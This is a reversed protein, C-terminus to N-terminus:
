PIPEPISSGDPGGARSLQRLQGGMRPGDIQGGRRRPRQVQDRHGGGGRLVKNPWGALVGEPRGTRAARSRWNDASSTVVMSRGLASAVPQLEGLRHGGLPLRPTDTTPPACTSARVILLAGLVLLAAVAATTNGASM